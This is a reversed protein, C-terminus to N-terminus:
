KRVEKKENLVKLLAERTTSEACGVECYIRVDSFLCADNFDPHMEDLGIKAAYEDIIHGARRARAIYKTRDKLAKEVYKPLM